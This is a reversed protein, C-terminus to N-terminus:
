NAFELIGFKAPTHFTQTLTPNWAMSSQSARDCRYFNARWRTGAKPAADTFAKLPIRWESTWIQKKADVKVATEFHSDWDFGDGPPQNLVLDLKENTPAVEFEKYQRIHDWDTGIFAEVVDRDWLGRREKDFWPPNFVRLVTYPCEYSIYLFQDSWLLRVTTSVAPRATGEFSLYELHTPVAKRWVAKSLDGDPLFDADIRGAKVLPAPISRALLKRANDFYIKRLASAPLGISSITWDGQIPTMHPWDRDRTELWRWEKAFFTEGDADTPPPENGSSGLILRDYVQFDTAFLIKDQHKIFVRRVEDPDHRGIEPIRAALDAYMNPYRDLMTDVWALEESNNAFHVCLFTTKPHRAIVRNLAELLEMRPPYVNTDGFWWNKHDKLEKWRENHEDFPLWFAAPDGVHISIPMHLEGCKEWVLDLKPSDIRILKHQGDRLYLGLRKFEKFGAAGLRYGEEVQKAATEAFDPEDWRSYDLNMYLMFRGPALEDSIKKNREFESPQGKERTVYGGSLNVAVGVGSADMIRVARALHEPTFDIHQHLDIIRHEARWGDAIRRTEVIPDEAAIAGLAFLGVALLIPRTQMIDFQQLRLM